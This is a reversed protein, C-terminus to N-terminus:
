DFCLCIVLLSFVQVGFVILEGFQDFGSVCIEVLGNMFYCGNVCYVVVMMQYQLYFENIVWQVDCCWILVVYGNVIVCLMSFKIYLLLDKSWGWLDYGLILVMGGVVLDYQLKGFLLIFELYGINIVVLLDFLVKFINDFFFYNFLGNVVCVGFLCCLILMWVKLWFKDIFFFWIVEVCGSKQLFSDFIRGGSGVVVFM